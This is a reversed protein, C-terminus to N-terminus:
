NDGIMDSVPIKGLVLIPIVTVFVFVMIVSLLVLGIDYRIFIDSTISKTISDSISINVINEYLLFIAMILSLGLQLINEIIIIGSINLTSFGCSYYVGIENKHTIISVIGAASFAILSLLLMIYMLLRMDKYTDDEKLVAELRENLTYVEVYIGNLAAVKKIDESANQNLKYALISNNCATASVVEDYDYVEPFIMYGDLCISGKPNALLSTGYFLSGTELSGVVKIKKTDGLVYENGIVYENGVIFKDSLESGVLVQIYKDGAELVEIDDPLVVGTAKLERIDVSLTNLYRDGYLTDFDMLNSLMQDDGFQRYNKYIEGLGDIDYSLPKEEIIYTGSWEISDLDDIDELFNVIRSKLTKDELNWNNISITLLDDSNVETIRNIEKELYTTKNYMHAVMGLLTISIVGLVVNIFFIIKRRWIRDFAILLKDKLKM